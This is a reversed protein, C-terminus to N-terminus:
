RILTVNGLYYHMEGKFDKLWIKYVYVGQPASGKENVTGDWLGEGRSPNPLAETDYIKEGWRNYIEMEFSNFETGQPAFFDNLGDNDPTFANPIYINFDSEIIITHSVSDTCGENNTVVLTVYYMGKDTFTFSPDKLTSLSNLIDGFNWLWHDAGISQDTFLILPNSLPAFDPPMMEFNAVPKPFVNITALQPSSFCNNADSVVVTYTTTASPFVNVSAGTMAGPNWLYVYPATGGSVIANIMTNDGECISDSAVSLIPLPQVTITVTTTNVCTNTDTGTVTYTTTIGPNASVTAGNTSSLGAAPSWFYSSAGSVTLSTSTGTCISAAAPTVVPTPLPHITVTVPEIDSCGATTTSKIYYIGSTAVANPSSLANTAAPDTWYSLTGGGTSGSTVAAATIDVTGPSCVAVPNTIVLVPAPNVTITFSDPATTCNNADTLTVTYSTTVFPFVDIFSRTLNGPNWSYSYPETGGMQNFTIINGRQGSCITDIGLLTFTIPPPATINVIASDICNNADTVTLIYTGATLNTATSTTQIPSTNWSYSYLPTGGTAKGTASGNNGGDCSANVSNAITAILPSPQSITVSTSVQCGNFDTVQVIYTGATLGTATDNTQPPNTNWLYTYPAIGASATATASGNNGGNCTVNSSSSITLVPATNITVTTDASAAACGGSAAISNTVTYTGPTSAALNIQGTITSIFVLGAPTASFTGASAGVPFTPSPDPTANQCYPGTYSFTADPTLTITVNFTSTNPCPGNTTYTVTYSGLTSSALDILGTTANISLGATSTFVGGTLGTITPSPDTGSQCFTSQTYSFSADESPIPTITVTATVINCSIDTVTVTYNGACLNTATQFTQGNSWLYSYPENGNNVNVTATSNCDCDSIVSTSLGLPIQTFKAIFLENGGNSVFDYYAGGGPNTLSYALPDLPTVGAFSGAVGAVFINGTNDAAISVNDETGEGGLYTAWLLIGTNSFSAIFFDRVGLGLSHFNSDNYGGDPSTQTTLDRSGTAFCLYVTGCSDIALSGSMLAWDEASGGYYTAWLRIGTNSFKLIFADNNGGYTGQFFGPCTDCVPFNMSTTLGTVFVNGNGDTSVSFGADGGSSGYYTAWLCTAANNFKLIFADGWGGAGGYIEQFFTGADELPFNTSSTYGTVFVNGNGDTAISKGYDDGNGGYYSAWLRNGLNDFKLIFADFFGGGFDNQFFAGSNQKPFDISSRTSGTIFVNDNIDLALSYGQDAGSGGYYTAWIRNGTSDFKLIFIDNGQGYDKQFFTGTDQVPFNMSATLGTVFINGNSDAAISSGGDTGNGGYYTAWILVGANNFKLIFVDRGGVKSNQFFTGTDQVPFNASQTSGTILLNGNNDVAVEGPGDSDSGGYFTAWVLQPDIILTSTLGSLSRSLNFAVTTQYYADGKQPIIHKQDAIKFKTAVEENTEKIYSYPANETLTGIEAKININGAKDLKLPNLSSYILEIQKPDAGPHVIFDYKFGKDNSNYFVWDIGPYIDKITIKEYSRVDTIGDPCHAYFYQSFYNSKGEKFINEKKITAGSLAMDIRNWEIKINEEKECIASPEVPEGHSGATVKLGEALEPCAKRSAEDEEEMKLFVYTLGKETIYMNMGPAEAKFLVFPVPKGDMDTMQGKNELFQVPQHQMWQRAEEKLKPDFTKNNNHTGKALAQVPLGAQRLLAQTVAPQEAYAFASMLFHALTSIILLHKKMQKTKLNACRVNM